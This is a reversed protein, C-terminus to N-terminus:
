EDNHYKYYCLKLNSKIVKIKEVKLTERLNLEKYEASLKVSIDM